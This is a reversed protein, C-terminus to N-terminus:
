KLKVHVAGQAVIEKTDSNFDASDAQLQMSDTEITVHGAYHTVSGNTDIREASATIDGPRLRKQALALAAITLVLCLRKM